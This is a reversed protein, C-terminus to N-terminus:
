SDSLFFKKCKALIRFLQLSNLDDAWFVADQSNVLKKCKFWIICNGKKKYRSWGLDLIQNFYETSLLHAILGAVIFCLLSFQTKFSKGFCVSFKSKEEDEFYHELFIDIFLHLNFFRGQNFSKRSQCYGCHDKQNIGCYHVISIKNSAM